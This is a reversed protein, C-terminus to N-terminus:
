NGICTSAFILIFTSVSLETPVVEILLCKEGIIIGM